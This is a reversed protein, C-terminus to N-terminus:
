QIRVEQVLSSLRADKLDIQDNGFCYEPLGLTERIFMPFGEKLFRFVGLRVCITEGKTIELPWLVLGHAFSVTRFRFPLILLESSREQQLRSYRQPDEAISLQYEDWDIQIAVEEVADQGPRSLFNKMKFANPDVYSGRDSGALGLNKEACDTLRGRLVIGRLRLTSSTFSHLANPDESQVSVELIEVCKTDRWKARFEPDYVVPADMNLWSWSPAVYPQVTRITQHSRSTDCVSWYLQYELDHRWLGALYTDKATERFEAALGALAISKDTLYTLHCKSYATVLTPWTVRPELNELYDLHSWHEAQDIKEMYGPDRLLAEIKKKRSADVPSLNWIQGVRQEYPSENSDPSEESACTWRCAWYIQSKGFGLQRPTLYREQVVWARSNLPADEIDEKEFAYRYKSDDEFQYEEGQLTLITPAEKPCFLGDSSDAAKLAAINCASHKYIYGM